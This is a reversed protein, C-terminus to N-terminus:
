PNSSFASNSGESTEVKKPFHHSRDMVFHRDNLTLLFAILDTKERNTLAISTTLEPSLTHNEEVGGTYHALVERLSLFRGDHMYPYTYSLNRLSPVKFLLSDSPLATLNYRGFDNLTTDVPLGNNKFEGNTFLPETHCSNCHAQFLEYGSQQQSNFEATGAVVSDYKATASILTTQFQAIAKLVQEGTIPEADFVKSFGKRYNPLRNLKAVVEALSADMELENSIPALAQMDLHHVAGDWMFSTSWALNFIPPANRLGIQDDIGHSLDHDTHAFANYPSHCSACSITSDRSLIPDYFLQRGLEVTGPEILVSVAGYNPEPFHDPKVSRWSDDSHWKGAVVLCSILAITLIRKM